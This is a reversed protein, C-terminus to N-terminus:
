YLGLSRMLSDDIMGTVILGADAQYRSIASRTGAGIIGDLPGNYYGAQALADQVALRTEYDVGYTNLYVPESYSYAYSPGFNDIIFV